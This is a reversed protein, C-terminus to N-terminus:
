RHHHAGAQHDYRDYHQRLLDAGYDGGNPHRLVTHIHNRSPVDNDFVVGPHQDFEALVVPSQVRYYFPGDDGTSGMWTFWTENLHAKVEAMRVGAHGEPGWGVFAAVVGLLRRRQGDSLDGACVGEVPVVANDQFAGAVMRGDFPHQMERPLHDPHISDRVIAKAAQATDLSRLLDLGAREETVFVSTGALHGEFVHCPESGMFTPTLLLHEGVVTCNLCLHHGDIQWAWPGDGAPDGFFSVFYPWEGFEDPSNTVEGLLHNLRMIDRAQGYGRPSLSAALLDLGLRRTAPPLDELMVGHRFVYMHVNLWTRRETADLPFTAKARQEPTLAALFRQAAETVPRTDGGPGDLHFLGPQVRGDSTVGALPADVLAARQDVLAQLPPPFPTRERASMPPLARLGLDTWHQM